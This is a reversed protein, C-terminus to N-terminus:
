LAEIGREGTRIKIVDEVNKVFIKGSGFNGTNLEELITKIIEEVYKDEVFTKIDLKPMLNVGQMDDRTYIQKNGKQKGYGFINMIMMGKAGHHNLIRKLNELKEPPIVIELEKM